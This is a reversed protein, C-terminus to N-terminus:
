RIAIKSRVNGCVAVYIGASLDTNRVRAGSLTYVTVESGDSAIIRSNDAILRVTGDAIDVRGSPTQNKIFFAPAITQVQSNGAKDTLTVRLDFWGNDSKTTIEKLAGEWLYGYCEVYKDNKASMEVESYQQTGNPAM